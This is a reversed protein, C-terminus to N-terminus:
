VYPYKAPDTKIPSKVQVYYCALNLTQWDMCADCFRLGHTGQYPYMKYYKLLCVSSYQHLWSTHDTFQITILM